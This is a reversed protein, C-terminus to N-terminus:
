SVFSDLQGVNTATDNGSVATLYQCGRETAASQMGEGLETFFEGPSTTSWALRRPLKTAPGAAVSPDFPTLSPVPALSHAPSSPNSAKCASLAGAALASAAGVAGIRLVDRRSPQAPYRRQHAPFPVSEPTM